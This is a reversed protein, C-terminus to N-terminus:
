TINSAYESHRNATRTKKKKKSVAIYQTIQRIMAVRLALYPLSHTSISNQPAGIGFLEVSSLTSTFRKQPLLSTFAEKAAKTHNVLYQMTNYTLSSNVLFM